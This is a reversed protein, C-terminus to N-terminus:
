QSNCRDGKLVFGEPTKMAQLGLTEAIIDVITNLDEDKFIVSIPCNALDPNELSVTKTYVANLHDIVDILRAQRFVFVKTKYAITNLDPQAKRTFRKTDKNFVGTEGAIIIIGQEYASYFKVKGSDVYVEVTNEEPIAKVNFSTGIDEIFTGGAEVVLQSQKSHQVKIFAEGSLKIKRGKKTATYKIQTNRNLVIQTNQALTVKRISDTSTITEAQLIQPPRSIYRYLLISIGALIVISAAIRLWPNELLRVKHASAPKAAPIKDMKDSLSNWAKEADVRVYRHAVASKNHVYQFDEFYKRNGPANDVWEWLLQEEGPSIEGALYKAILNDIHKLEHIM